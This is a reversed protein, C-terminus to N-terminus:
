AVSPGLRCALAALTRAEAESKVQALLAVRVLEIGPSLFAWYRRFRARSAPDTTVVRTETRALCTAEDRPQVQLTFAIKAFGPTDFKEFEDKALGYFTPAPRWPQTVAGFVIEEGPKLDLVVWGLRGLEVLLGEHKTAGNAGDSKSRMLFARARFLAAVLPSRELETNSIVEFTEAAPARVVTARELRVDYVPMIADLSSVSRRSAGFRLWSAGAYALYGAVASAGVAAITGAVPHSARENLPRGDRCALSAMAHLRRRVSRECLNGAGGVLTERVPRVGCMELNLKVNKLAHAGFRTRYFVAPMGMTVLLRASKGGLLGRPSGNGDGYSMAFGPRFTQEVFAKLMAPMDGIWLPFFFALRDAWAIDGQAAHIAPPPEGETFDRAERLWPFELRAVDIWRVQHGAAQAGEAYARALARCLRAEDPDPHGVVITFKAM